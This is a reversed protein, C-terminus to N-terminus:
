ETLAALAIEAEKKMVVNDACANIAQRYAEAAALKDGKM